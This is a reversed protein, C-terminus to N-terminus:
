SSQDLEKIAKVASLLDLRLADAPMGHQPRLKWKGNRTLYVRHFIVTNTNQKRVHGTIVLPADKQADFGLIEPEISIEVDGFDIQLEHFVRDSQHAPYIHIATAEGNRMETLGLSFDDGGLHTYDVEVSGKTTNISVGCDPEAWIRAKM